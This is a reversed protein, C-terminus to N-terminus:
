SKGGQNEVMISSRQSKRNSLPQCRANTRSVPIRKQKTDARHVRVQVQVDSVGPISQPGKLEQEPKSPTGYFQQVEIKDHRQRESPTYMPKPQCTEEACELVLDSSSSEKTPSPSYRLYTPLYRPFPSEDPGPSRFPDIDTRTTHQWQYRWAGPQCVRPLKKDLEAWYEDITQEDTDESPSPLFTTFAPGLPPPPSASIMPALASSPSSDWDSSGPPVDQLRPNGSSSSLHRPPPTFLRRNRNRLIVPAM